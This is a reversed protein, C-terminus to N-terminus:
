GVKSPNLGSSLWFKAHPEIWNLLRALGQGMRPFASYGKIRFCFLGVARPQKQAHAFYCGRRLRSSSRLLGQRRENLKLGGGSLERHSFPLTLHRPWLLNSSRTTQPRWQSGRTPRPSWPGVVVEWLQQSPQGVLAMSQVLHTRRWLMDGMEKFFLHTVSPHLGKLSDFALLSKKTKEEQSPLAPSLPGLGLVKLENPHRYWGVALKLVESM